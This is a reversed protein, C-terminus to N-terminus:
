LLFYALVGITGIVSGVIILLSVVGFILYCLYYVGIAVFIGILLVGIVQLIFSTLFYLVALIGGSIVIYYGLKKLRKLWNKQKIM